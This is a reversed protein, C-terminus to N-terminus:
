SQVFSQKVYYLTKEKTKYCFLNDFIYLIIIVCYSMVLLWFVVDAIYECYTEQHM